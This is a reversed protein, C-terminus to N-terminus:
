RSELAGRRSRISRRAPRGRRRRVSPAALLRVGPARQAPRARGVDCSRRAGPTRSVSDAALVAPYVGGWPVAVRPPKRGVAALVTAFVDRLWLDDGALIYRDGARGRDLALVHGRAVDDAAAVNLGAGRLYART